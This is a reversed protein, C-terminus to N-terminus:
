TGILIGWAVSCGAFLALSIQILKRCDFRDALSGAYVSFLLSPMWHGIVAYGSLVPSQFVYFLVFYSVVHEINDATMFLVNSIWYSRYDAVRFAAFAIGRAEHAPVPAAAAPAETTAAM